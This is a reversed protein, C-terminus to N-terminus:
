VAEVVLRVRLFCRDCRLKGWLLREREAVFNVAMRVFSGDDTAEPMSNAVNSHRVIQTTPPWVVSWNWECKCCRDPQNAAAAGRSRIQSTGGM